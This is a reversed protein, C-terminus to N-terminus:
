GHVSRAIKASTEEIAQVVQAHIEPRAGLVPADFWNAPNIQQHVREGGLTTPHWEGRNFARGAMNFGRPMARARQIIQIGANRGSWRTAAKTQRAIAQRMSGGAAYGRSPLARVKARQVQVLPLVTKRLRKALERQLVKGGEAEKLARKMTRMVEGLDNGYHIGM